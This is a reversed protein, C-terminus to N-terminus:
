LGAAVLRSYSTCFQLFTSSADPLRTEPFMQNGIFFIKFAVQVVNVVIWHFM